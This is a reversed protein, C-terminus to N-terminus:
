PVGTTAAALEPRVALVEIEGTAESQTCLGVLYGSADVVPTGEPVVLTDIESFPLEISPTALVTVMDFAEPMSGAVQHGPEDSALMMVVLGNTESGLIEASGGHGNSFEVDIFTGHTAALSARTTVALRGNGIPTALADHEVREALANPRVTQNTVGDLGVATGIASTRLSPDGSFSAVLTSPSSTASIAIPSDQRRPSVTLMLVGIALLGITGTTLAFVRTSLAAPEARAAARQEAALESPHRWTREHPPLPGREV